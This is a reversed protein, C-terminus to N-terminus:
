NAPEPKGLTRRLELLLEALAHSTSRAENLDIETQREIRRLDAEMQLAQRSGATLREELRATVATMSAHDQRVAANESELAVIRALLEALTADLREQRENTSGLAQSLRDIEGRQSAIEVRAAEDEKILRIM